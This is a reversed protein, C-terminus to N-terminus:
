IHDYNAYKNPIQILLLCWILPATSFHALLMLKYCPPHYLVPSSFDFVTKIFFVGLSSFFFSM